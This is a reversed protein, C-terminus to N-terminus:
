SPLCSFYKEQLGRVSNSLKSSKEVAKQGHYYVRGIIKDDAEVMVEQNTVAYAMSRALKEWRPLEAYMNRAAYHFDYNFTNQPPKKAVERSRAFLAQMRESIEM